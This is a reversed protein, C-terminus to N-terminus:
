KFEGMSRVADDLDDDAKQETLSRRMLETADDVKAGPTHKKHLAQLARILSPIADMYVFVRPNYKGTKIQSDSRKVMWPAWSGDALSKIVAMGIQPYDGKERPEPLYLFLGFRSKKGDPSIAFIETGPLDKLAM